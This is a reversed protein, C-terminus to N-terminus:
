SKIEGTDLDIAGQGYKEQLQRAIQKERSAIDKQTDLLIAKQIELEGLAYALNTYEQKINKVTQLEDATLKKAVIGM